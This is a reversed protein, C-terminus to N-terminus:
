RFEIKISKSQLTFVHAARKLNMCSISKPAIAFPCNPSIKNKEMEKSKITAQFFKEEFQNFSFHYHSQLKIM